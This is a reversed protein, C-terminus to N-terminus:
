NNFLKAKEKNRRRHAKIAETMSYGSHKVGEINILCRYQYAYVGAKVKKIKLPQELM